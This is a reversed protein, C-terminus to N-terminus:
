KSSSRYRFIAGAAMLALTFTFAPRIFVQGFSSTRTADMSEFLFIYFYIVAWYLSVLIYLARLWRDNKSRRILRMQLFVNLLAFVVNAAALMANIGAM